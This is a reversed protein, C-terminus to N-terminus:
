PKTEKPQVNLGLVGVAARKGVLELDGLDAFTYRAAQAGLAQRTTESLLLGCEPHMKTLKEIRAAVNVPDGIVTYEQRQASGTAGVTVTGTNLGIGFRAVPQGEASRRANLQDLGERIRLAARLGRAAHDAYETPAGFICLVADGLFRGIIGGETETARIIVEFYQNLTAMVTEPTHAEAFATSDRMDCFLVTVTKRQGELTVRGAMVAESVERSLYRGFLDRLREREALGAVMGNFARALDGLEDWRTEPVRPTLDGGAVARAAATVVGVPALTRQTFAVTLGMTALMAVLMALASGRIVDWRLNEVPANSAGAIVYGIRQGDRNLIPATVEYVGTGSWATERLLAATGALTVTDPLVRGLYAPMTGELVQYRLNTLFFYRIDFDYRSDSDASMQAALQAPTVALIKRLVAVNQTDLEGMTLLPQGQSLATMRDLARTASKKLNTELLDSEYRVQVATLATMALLVLLGIGLSLRAALPLRAVAGRLGRPGRHVARPLFGPAGEARMAEAPHVDAARG